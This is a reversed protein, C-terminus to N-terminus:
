YADDHLVCAAHSADCCDKLSAGYRLSREDYSRMTQYIGKCYYYPYSCVEQIPDEEPEPPPPAEARLQALALNDEGELRTKKSISPTEQEKRQKGNRKM